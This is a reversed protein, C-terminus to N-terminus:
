RRILAHMIGNALGHVESCCGQQGFVKNEDDSKISLHGQKAM